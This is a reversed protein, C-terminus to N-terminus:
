ESVAHGCPRGDRDSSVPAACVREPARAYWFTVESVVLTRGHYTARDLATVAAAGGSSMVVYGIRTAAAAGKMVWVDTSVVPGFPACLEALDACTTETTLNAICLKV